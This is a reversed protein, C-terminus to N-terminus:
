SSMRQSPSTSGLCVHCPDVLWVCLCVCMMTRVAVKQLGRRAIDIPRMLVALLKAQRAFLFQACDPWPVVSTALRDRMDKHSADLLAELCAAPRGRATAALVAPADRVLDELVADLEEYVRLADEKLGLAQYLAALGDKLLFYRPWDFAHAALQHPRMADAELACEHLCALRVSLVHGMRLKLSALMIPFNSLDGGDLRHVRRAQQALGEHDAAFSEVDAEIAAQVRKIAARVKDPEKAAAAKREPVFFCLFDVHPRATMLRNMDEVFALLVPRVDAKYTDVDDCKIVFVYLVPRHYLEHAVTAPMTVTSPSSAAGAALPPAAPATSLSLSSGLATTMLGLGPSAHAPSAAAPLTASRPMLLPALEVADKWSLLRLAVPAKVAGQGPALSRKPLTLPVDALPLQGFFDRAIMAWADWDDRLVITVEPDM